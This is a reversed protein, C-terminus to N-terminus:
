KHLIHHEIYAVCLLKNQTPWFPEYCKDRIGGRGRPPGSSFPSGVKGVYMIDSVDSSCQTTLIWQIAQRYQM